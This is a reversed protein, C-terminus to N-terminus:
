GSPSQTSRNTKWAHYKELYQDLFEDARKLALHRLLNRLFGKAYITAPLSAFDEAELAVIFEKSIKLSRHLDDVSLGHAERLSALFGGTAFGHKKEAAVAASQIRDTAELNVRVGVHNKPKKLDASPDFGVVTGTDVSLEAWETLGNYATELERLQEIRQEDPVMSYAASRSSYIRKLKIYAERIERPSAQLSVGLKSAFGSVAGSPQKASNGQSQQENPQM